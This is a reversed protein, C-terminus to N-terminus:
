RGEGLQRRKEAVLKELEELLKGDRQSVTEVLTSLVPRAAELDLGLLSELVGTALGRQLQERSLRAAYFFARKEKRRALLGKKYLRDLTTMLTTYALSAGFADHVERVSAERDRLWLFDMVQRELTGLAASAAERPTRFGRIFFSIMGFSL